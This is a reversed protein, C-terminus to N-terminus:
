PHKSAREELLKSYLENIDNCIKQLNDDILTSTIGNALLINRIQIKADIQDEVKTTM